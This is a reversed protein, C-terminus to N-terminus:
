RIRHEVPAEGLRGLGPDGALRAHFRVVVVVIDPDVTLDRRKRRGLNDLGQDAASEAVDTVGVPSIARAGLRCNNVYLENALRGVDGQTHVLRELRLRALHCVHVRAGAVLAHHHAEGAVLRRFVHRCGDSEGM